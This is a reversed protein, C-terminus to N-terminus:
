SNKELLKTLKRTADEVIKAARQYTKSDGTGIIQRLIAIAEWGEDKLLGVAQWDIDKAEWPTEVTKEKLEAEGAPTLHYTKKGSKENAAVLGADELMQLTPYVSGPSPKWLGHSRGELFKIIEYGHRPQDKLVSLIIPAIDGREAKPFGHWAFRALRHPGIKWDWDINAHHDRWFDQM